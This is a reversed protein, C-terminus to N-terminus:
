EHIALGSRVAQNRISLALPKSPASYLEQCEIQITNDNLIIFSVTSTNM